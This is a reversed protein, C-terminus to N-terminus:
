GKKIIREDIILDSIFTNIIANVDKEEYLSYYQRIIDLINDNIGFTVIISNRANNTRTFMDYNHTKAFQYIFNFVKEKDHNFKYKKATEIIANALKHVRDDYLSRYSTKTRRAFEVIDSYLIKGAKDHGLVYNIIAVVDEKTLMEQLKSRYNNDRTIANFNGNIALNIATILQEDGYKVFTKFLAEILLIDLKQYIMAINKFKHIDLTGNLKEMILQYAVQRYESTEEQNAIFKSFTRSNLKSGIGHGVTLELSEHVLDCLIENYSETGDIAFGVGHEKCLFPNNEKLANCLYPNNNVFSAVYEADKMSYLRVVINDNRDNSAVQSTHPINNNALFEFLINVGEYIFEAKLPIFLKIYRDTVYPENRFYCYYPFKDDHIVKINEVKEFRKLWDPFHKSFDEKHENNVLLSYIAKASFRSNEKSNQRYIQEVFALFKDIKRLDKDM